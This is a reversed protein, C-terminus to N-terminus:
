ICTLLPMKGTNVINRKATQAAFKITLMYTNVHLNIADVKSTFDAYKRIVLNVNNEKRVDGQTTISDVHKQKTKVM